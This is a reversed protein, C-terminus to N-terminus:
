RATFCSCCQQVRHLQELNFHSSQFVSCFLNVKYVKVQLLCTETATGAPNGANLWNRPKYTGANYTPKPLKNQPLFTLARVCFARSVALGGLYDDDRSNLTHVSLVSTNPSDKETRASFTDRPSCSVKWQRLDKSRSIRRKASVVM